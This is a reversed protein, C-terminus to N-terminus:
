HPITQNVCPTVHSTSLLTPILNNIQCRIIYFSTNAVKMSTYYTKFFSSACSTATWMRKTTGYNHEFKTDALTVNLWVRERKESFLKFCYSISSFAPNLFKRNDRIFGNIKLLMKDSCYTLAEISCKIYNNSWFVASPCCCLNGISQVIGLGTPNGM